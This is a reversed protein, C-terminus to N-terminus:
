EGSDLLGEKEQKQVVEVDDGEETVLDLDRKYYEGLSMKERYTINTKGNVAIQVTNITDLETLSDVISYIIVDEKIEFNQTLFGDGLNVLCVGDMVSVSVLETTSPIASKANSSKPEDLLREMILKEISTNSSYYVHQTERVLGDGTMSAFYLTLNAEQINNIKEGPNEVFSDNTLIGVEKNNADTLPLNNVYFSVGEVDPIQMMNHVVAGRCLVEQTAPIESYAKNFYLYLQHDTYEYREIQVDDPFLKQYDVDDTSKSMQDIFEEILGVTDSADPDYSKSVIKTKQKNLYFMTYGTNTEKKSNCGALGALTLLMILLFIGSQKWRKM